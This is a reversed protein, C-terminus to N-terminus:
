ITELIDTFHVHALLGARVPYWCIHLRAYGQDAHSNEACLSGRLGPFTGGSAFLSHFHILSLRCMEGLSTFECYFSGDPQRQVVGRPTRLSVSASRGKYIGHRARLACGRATDRGRANRTLQNWIVDEIMAVFREHVQSPM